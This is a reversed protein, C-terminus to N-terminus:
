GDDICRNMWKDTKRDMVSKIQILVTSVLIVFDESHAAALVRTKQSLIEHRQTFPHGEFSPMLSRYKAAIPENLTFITASLYLCAACLQM